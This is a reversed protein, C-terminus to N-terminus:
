SGVRLFPYLIRDHSRGQLISIFNPAAPAPCREINGVKLPFPRSKFGAQRDTGSRPKGAAVELKGPQHVVLSNWRGRRGAYFFSRSPIVTLLNGWLRKICRITNSRLEM